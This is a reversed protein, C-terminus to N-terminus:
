RENVEKKFFEKAGKVKEPNFQYAKNKFASFVQRLYAGGNALIQAGFDATADDEGLLRGYQNGLKKMMAKLRRASRKIAQNPLQDFIDKAEQGSTRLYNFILDNEAQAISKASKFGDKFGLAIIQQSTKLIKILIM